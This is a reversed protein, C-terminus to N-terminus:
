LHYLRLSMERLLKITRYNIIRRYPTYRRFHHCALRDYERQEAEATLVVIHLIMRLNYLIRNATKADPTVEGKQM